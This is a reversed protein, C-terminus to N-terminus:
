RYKEKFADSIVSKVNINIVDTLENIIYQEVESSHLLSILNNHSKHSDTGEKKIKNAVAWAVQVAKSGSYGFKAEVWKILNLTPPQKGQKRGVETFMSYDVGWIEVSNAESGLRVELAEGWNGTARVGSNIYAPLIFNSIVKEM